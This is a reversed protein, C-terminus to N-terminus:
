YLCCAATILMVALVWTSNVTWSQAMNVEGKDISEILAYPIRITGFPGNGVLKTQELSTVNLRYVRGSFTHVKLRDGEMLNQELNEKSIRLIPSNPYSIVCGTLMIIVLVIFYRISVYITSFEMCLTFVNASSVGILSNKTFNHNFIM